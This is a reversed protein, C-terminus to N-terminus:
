SGTTLSFPIVSTPLIFNLIPVLILSAGGGCIASIWFAAITATFLAVIKFLM